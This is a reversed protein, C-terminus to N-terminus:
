AQSLSILIFTNAVVAVCAIAVHEGASMGPRVFVPRVLRAPRELNDGENEGALEVSSEMLTRATDSMRMIRAEAERKTLIYRDPVFPRFIDEASVYIFPSAPIDQPSSSTSTSTLGPRTELFAQLVTLASDRNIREYAGDKSTSGRQPRGKVTSSSTSTNPTYNHEKFAKNVALPNRTNDHLLSGFLSFSGKSTRSSATSLLRDRLNDKMAKALSQFGNSKYDEEYLIGLTHIVCDVHPLIDQKLLQEDFASGQVWNVQMMSHVSDCDTLFPLM